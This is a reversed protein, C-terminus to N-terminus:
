SKALANQEELAKALDDASILDQRVLIEGLRIKEPSAM